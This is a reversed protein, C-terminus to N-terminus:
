FGPIVQGAGVVFELPERGKSSVFVAGDEHTGTYHVRVTDGQKAQSM